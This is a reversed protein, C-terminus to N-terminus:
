FGCFAPRDRWTPNGIIRRIEGRIQNKGWELYHAGDKEVDCVHVPRKGLLSEVAKRREESRVSYLVRAGEEELSKGVAWAVSRRNAVGFVLFTNGELGLFSM